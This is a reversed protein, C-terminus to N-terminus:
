PGTSHSAGAAAEEEEESSPWDPHWAVVRLNNARTLLMAAAEELQEAAHHLEERFQRPLTRTETM